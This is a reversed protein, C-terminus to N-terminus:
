ILQLQNFHQKWSEISQSMKVPHFVEFEFNENRLCNEIMQKPNNRTGSYNWSTCLPANYVKIGFRQQMMHVMTPIACELFLKNERFLDLIKLIENRQKDSEVILYLMDAQGYKFNLYSSGDKDTQKYFKLRPDHFIKLFTDICEDIVIMRWDLTQLLKKYIIFNRNEYLKILVGSENKNTKGEFDDEVIWENGGIKELLSGTVMLDDHVYLISLNPNKHEKIVRAINAYPSVYGDDPRHYIKQYLSENQNLKKKRKPIALITKTFKNTQRWKENWLFLEDFIYNFQGLLIVVSNRNRIKKNNLSSIEHESLSKWNSLWSMSSESTFSSKNLLMYEDFVIISIACVIICLLMLTFKIVFRDKEM